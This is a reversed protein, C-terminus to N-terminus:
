EGNRKEGGGMYGRGKKKRRGWWVFHIYLYFWNLKKKEIKKKEKRKWEGKKGPVHLGWEGNRKEKKKKKGGGMNGGAKRKEQGAGCVCGREGM